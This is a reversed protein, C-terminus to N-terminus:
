DNEIWLEHVYPQWAKLAIPGPGGETTVAIIRQAPAPVPSRRSGGDFAAGATLPM